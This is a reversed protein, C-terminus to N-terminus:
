FPTAHTQHKDCGAEVHEEPVSQSWHICHRDEWKDFYDCSLCSRDAPYAALARSVVERATDTEICPKDGVYFDLVAKMAKAVSEKQKETMRPWRDPGPSLFAKTSIM